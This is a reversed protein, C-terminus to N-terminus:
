KNILYFVKSPTLYHALYYFYKIEENVAINAGIGCLNSINFLSNIVQM